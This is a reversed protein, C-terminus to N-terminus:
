ESKYSDFVNTNSPSSFYQASYNRGAFEIIELFFVPSLTRLDVLALPGTTLAIKKSDITIFPSLFLIFFDYVQIYATDKSEECTM